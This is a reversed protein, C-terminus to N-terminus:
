KLIYSGDVLQFGLKPCETNSSIGNGGAGCTIKNTPVGGDLIYYSITLSGGKGYILGLGVYATASNVFFRISCSSYGSIPQCSTGGDIAWNEMNACKTDVTELLCLRMAEGIARLRPLQAQIKSKDVAKQYQPLAIASLIGIILVVVLLEILTFAKKM